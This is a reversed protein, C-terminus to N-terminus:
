LGMEKSSAGSRFASHPADDAAAGGNGITEQHPHSGELADSPPLEFRLKSRLALLIVAGAALVAAGVWMTLSFSGTTDRLFGAAYPGIFGSLNAFSNMLALGAALAMGSLFSAPLTWATSIASLLGGLLIAIGLLMIYASGNGLVSVGIGAAGILMPVAIFAVRNNSRDSLRSVLIMVITGFTFPIATILGVQFVSFESGWTVSLEQVMTPFFFFTGYFAYMISFLVITTCVVRIDKMAKFASRISTSNGGSSDGVNAALWAKQDSNLWKAESPRNTLYFFVVIGCVVTPLGELLFMTRWGELGFFTGDFYQIIATSIPGGLVTSLPVALYVYAVIRARYQPPFWYTLYLIIGPLLGAEAAGLLFRVIYLQFENQVFGTSASLFGWTVAIRAIWVRAGVRHLIINSPVEFFFYGIFFLGAGLGFASQSIGLDANMELAAFSINTRDLFSLFYLVVLIPVVRRTVRTVTSKELDTRTKAQPQEVM